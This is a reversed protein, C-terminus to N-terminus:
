MKGTMKLHIFRYFIDDFDMKENLHASPGKMPDLPLSSNTGTSKREVSCWAMFIYQSLPPIAGHM